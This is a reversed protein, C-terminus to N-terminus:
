TQVPRRLDTREGVTEVTPTELPARGKPSDVSRNDLVWPEPSPGTPRRCLGWTEEVGEM